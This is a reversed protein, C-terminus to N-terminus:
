FLNWNGFSGESINAAQTSACEYRCITTRGICMNRRSSHLIAVLCLLKTTFMELCPRIRYHNQCKASMEIVSLITFFLFCRDYLTLVFSLFNTKYNRVNSKSCSINNLVTINVKTDPLDEALCKTNVVLAQRLWFPLYIDRWRQKVCLGQTLVPYQVGLFVNLIVLWDGNHQFTWFFSHVWDQAQVWLM